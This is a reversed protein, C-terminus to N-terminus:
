WSAQIALLTSAAEKRYKENSSFIELIRLAACHQRKGFGSLLGRAGGPLGQKQAQTFSVFDEALQNIEQPSVWIIEPRFSNVPYSLDNAMLQIATILLLDYGAPGRFMVPYFAPMKKVSIITGIERTIGRELERSLYDYPLAPLDSEMVAVIPLEWNKFYDIKTISDHDTRRVLLIKGDKNIIGPALGVTTKMKEM